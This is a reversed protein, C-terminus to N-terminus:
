PQQEQGQRVLESLQDARHVTRVCEGLSRCMGPQWAPVNGAMVNRFARCALRLRQTFTPRNATM